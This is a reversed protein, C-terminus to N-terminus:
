ARSLMGELYHTWMEKVAERADQACLTPMRDQYQLLMNQLMSAADLEDEFDFEYAEPATEATIPSSISAHHHHHNHNPHHNSSPPQPSPPQVPSLPPSSGSAVILKLLEQWLEEAGQLKRGVEFRHNSPSNSSSPSSPSSPGAAGGIKLVM